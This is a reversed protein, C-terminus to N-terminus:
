RHRFTFRCPLPIVFGGCTTVWFGSVRCPLILCTATASVTSDRLHYCYVTTYFSRRWFPLFYDCPGWGPITTAAWFHLDLLPLLHHVWLPPMEWVQCANSTLFELYVGLVWTVTVTPGLTVCASDLYRCTTGLLHTGTTFVASRVRCSCAPLGPLHCTDEWFPMTLFHHHRYFRVTDSIQFGYFNGSCDPLFLSRSIVWQYRGHYSCTSHLYFYGSCCGPRITFHLCSIRGGDGVELCRLCYFSAPLRYFPLVCHLGSWTTTSRCQHLRLSHHGLITCSCFPLFPLRYKHVWTLVSSRHYFRHVRHCSHLFPPPLFPLRYFRLSHDSHYFLVVWSCHHM